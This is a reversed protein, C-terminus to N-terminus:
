SHALKSDIGNVCLEMPLFNQDMLDANREVPNPNAYPLRGSLLKYVIAAREFCLAPLGKVSENIWGTRVELIEAPPLSNASYEFLKEPIFLIRTTEPHAADELDVLIGGAGLVPMENGNQAALTIARCVALAAACSKEGGEEFYQALTKINEADNGLPNKACYFVLREPNGNKQSDYSKVEEFTWQRFNKGDFIVGEQSLISDHGTKGFTYEDLNSNLRLEGNEITLLTMIIEKSDALM